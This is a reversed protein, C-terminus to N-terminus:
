ADTPTAPKEPEHNERPSANQNEPHNLTRVGTPEAEKRETSTEPTGNEPLSKPPTSNAPVDSPEVWAKSRKSRVPLSVDVPKPKPKMKIERKLREMELWARALQARSAATVKPNRADALMLDQFESAESYASSHKPRSRSAKLAPPEPLMALANVYCGLAVLAM